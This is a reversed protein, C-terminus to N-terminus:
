RRVPRCWGSRVQEGRVREVRPMVPHRSRNLALMVMNHGRAPPGCRSTPSSRRQVLTSGGVADATVQCL